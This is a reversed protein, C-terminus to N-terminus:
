PSMPSVWVAAITPRSPEMSQSHRGRNSESAHKARSSPSSLWPKQRIAGVASCVVRASPVPPVGQHQLGFELRGVAHDPEDVAHGDALDIGLHHADDLPHAPVDVDAHLEGHAEAVAGDQGPHAARAAQVVAM